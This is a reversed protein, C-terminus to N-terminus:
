VRRFRIFLSPIGKPLFLQTLGSAPHDCFRIARRDVVCPVRVFAETEGQDGLVGKRRTWIGQAQKATNKPHYRAAQVRLRRNGGTEELAQLIAEREVEALTARPPTASKSQAPQRSLSMSPPLNDTSLYETKCLLVARQVVNELERVNGPWNHRVLADLTRPLFGKVPRAYAHRYTELFSRALLPIDGRREKLPPLTITVVNLRYFLDERFRGEKM